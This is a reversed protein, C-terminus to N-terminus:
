GWIKNLEAISIIDFAKFNFFDFILDVLYINRFDCSSLEKNSYEIFNDFNQDSISAGFANSHM